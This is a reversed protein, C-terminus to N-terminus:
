LFNPTHSLSCNVAKLFSTNKVNERGYIPKVLYAVMINVRKHAEMKEYSKNPGIQHGCILRQASSRSNVKIKFLLLLLDVKFCLIAVQGVETDNQVLFLVIVRLKQLIPCFLNSPKFITIKKICYGVHIPTDFQFLAPFITRQFIFM